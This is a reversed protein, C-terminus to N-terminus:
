LDQLGGEIWALRCEFKIPQLERSALRGIPFRGIPFRSTGSFFPFVPSDPIRNLRGQTGTVLMLQLPSPIHEAAFIM